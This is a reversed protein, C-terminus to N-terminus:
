ACRPLDAVGFQEFEKEHIPRVSSSTHTYRKLSHHHPEILLTAAAPTAGATTWVGHKGSSNGPAAYDSVLNSDRSFENTEPQV